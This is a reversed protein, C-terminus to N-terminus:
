YASSLAWSELELLAGNRREEYLSLFGQDAAARAAVEAPSGEVDRAGQNGIFLVLSVGGQNRLSSFLIGDILQRNDFRHSTRLYECVVQTPVYEVHESGDRQVPLRLDRAFHQLFALEVRRSARERDFASPVTPLHSLDLLRLPRLPRFCGVTIASEPNPEAGRTEAIATEADLAGYFMAIGAPSMRNAALARNSPPAGLEAASTPQQDARHARGRYIRLDQFSRILGEEEVVEGLTRLLALPLVRDRDDDVISRDGALFFYRRQHKIVDVFGDWSVRLRESPSLEYFNRQVWADGGLAAALDQLVEADATPNLDTEGGLLEYSTMPTVLQYGGEGSDWPVGEDDAHNYEQLVVEEVLEALLVLPAAIPDDTSTRDCYDCYTGRAHRRIFAAVAPDETHDDCIYAHRTRFAIDDPDM